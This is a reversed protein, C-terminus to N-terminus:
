DNEMRSFGIPLANPVNFSVITGQTWESELQLGKGFLALLRSNINRLGVGDSAREDALLTLLREPKIGVGDDSVTVNIGQDTEKIVIRVTDGAARQMIGHRIANEILPQISLPPILVLCDEDIEYEVKLREDFRAKELYLYSEILELEKQLTTLQDRNKFNFSARLYRSLETLLQMTKEPEDPCVAIATNLANYLFHPKIQAQLFALESSIVMQVSKRLKLLTSVHARLEGAEVVTYFNYAKRCRIEINFVKDFLKFFSWPNAGM